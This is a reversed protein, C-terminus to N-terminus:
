PADNLGFVSKKLRLLGGKDVGELPPGSWAKPPEAYLVREAEDGKLFAAGVDCSSLRWSRHQRSAAVLLLLHQTNRSATPADVRLDLLDPDKYGPVLLRDNALIPLPNSDTRKGDNKDTFMHRMQLVRGSEGQRALDERVQKAERAPLIEVANNALWKHWQDRAAAEYLRRQEGPLKSWALERRATAALADWTEGDDPVPEHIYTEDM